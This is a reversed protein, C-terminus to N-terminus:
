GGSEDLTREMRKRFGRRFLYWMTAIAPILLMEREQEWGGTYMYWASAGASLIIMALWFWEAAKSVQITRRPDM